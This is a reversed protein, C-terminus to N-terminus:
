RNDCFEEWAKRLRYQKIIPWLELLPLEPRFEGVQPMDEDEDNHVTKVIGIPELGMAGRLYNVNEAEVFGQHVYKRQLRASVGNRQFPSFECDNNANYKYVYKGMKFNRYLAFPEISSM